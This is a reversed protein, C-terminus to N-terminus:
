FKKAPRGAIVVMDGPKLGQTYADLDPIGTSLGDLTVGAMHRDFREQLVDLHEALLDGISGCEADAGGSDLGSVLTQVQSLKDEVSGAGQAIESAKDAMSVIQRCVARDRVIRAYERANAVSPTNQWIEGALALTSEGSRLEPHRDGLTIVDVPTGADDLECILGFLEANDGYAFADASLGDRLVSVLEPRKLMAGIVGHEAELSFLNMTSM